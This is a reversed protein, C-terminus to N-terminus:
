GALDEAYSSPLTRYEAGMSAINRTYHDTEPELSPELEGHKVVIVDM